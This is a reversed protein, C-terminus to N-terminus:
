FTLPSPQPPPPQSPTGLAPVVDPALLAGWTSPCYSPALLSRLLLTTPALSSHLWRQPLLTVSHIAQSSPLLLLPSLPQFCCPCSLFSFAWSTQNPTLPSTLPHSHFFLSPSSLFSILLCLPPPPLFDRAPAVSSFPAQTPTVEEWGDQQSGALGAPWFLYLTLSQLVLTPVM